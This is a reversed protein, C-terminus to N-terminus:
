KAFVLDFQLLSMLEGGLDELLQLDLEAVNKSNNAEHSLIWQRGSALPTYNQLLNNDVISDQVWRCGYVTSSHKNASM